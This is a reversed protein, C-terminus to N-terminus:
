EVDSDIDSIFALCTTTMPVSVGISDRGKSSGRLDTSKRTCSWSSGRPSVHDWFFVPSVWSNKNSIISVWTLM